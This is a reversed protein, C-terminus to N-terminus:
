PAVRRPWRADRLGQRARPEVRLRDGQPRQGGSGDEVGSRRRRKRRKPADKPRFRRTFGASGIRRRRPSAQVRERDRSGVDRAAADSNGVSPARGASRGASKPRARRPRSRGASCAPRSHRRRRGPPQLSLGAIRRLPERAPLRGPSRDRRRRRHGESQTEPRALHGRLRRRPRGRRRSSGPHVLPRDEAARGPLAEARQPEFLRHRFRRDVAPRRAGRLEKMTEIARDVDQMVLSETLELELYKPELGSEALAM